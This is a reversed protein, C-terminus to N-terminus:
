SREPQSGSIDPPHQARETAQYGVAFPFAQLLARLPIDAQAKIRLKVALKVEYFSKTRM